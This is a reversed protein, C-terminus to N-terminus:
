IDIAKREKQHQNDLRDMWDEPITPVLSQERVSKERQAGLKQKAEQYISEAILSVSDTTTVMTENPKPWTYAFMTNTTPLTFPLLYRSDRKEVIWERTSEEDPSDDMDEATAASLESESQLSLRKERGVMNALLLSGLSSVSNPRSRATGRGLSMTSVRRSRCPSKPGDTSFGGKVKSARITDKAIQMTYKEIEEPLRAEDVEYRYHLVCRKIQLPNLLDFAKTTDIFAMLDDLQSVCQLLQLLQILPNLYTLLNSPLKNEHVWEEITTLNMRIQIAKSRCLYNKNTLIRNFMECSLFHFCQAIAQMIIVPHVEYSQLVYLSSSLLSAISQPSISRQQDQPRQCAITEMANSQVMSKRSRGRRFFRQWDNAFHVQGFGDFAEYELMAMELIKDIRKQFDIVLMMYIESILESIALQHEATAVVLGVDRKLYYLLQSLNTMWFALTQIDHNSCKVVDTIRDVASTLLECLLERTSFHHCFRASLFLINAPVLTEQQSKMPLQLESIATDLIHPLDKEDFVFMQHPLCQDWDFKDISHMCAEYAAFEIEEENDIGAPKADAKEWPCPDNDDEEDQTELEENMSAMLRRQREPENALFDQYGDETSQYYFDLNPLASVSSRRRGRKQRQSVIALESCITDGNSFIHTLNSNDTDVLDFVTRGRASVATSSAGHELLLKVVGSHNNSSAWMLATWGSKDQIDINAGASLLTRVVDLHGFCAAYILATSGNHEDDPTDINLFPRLREDTLIQQVNTNDGNSAARSLNSAVLRRWRRQHRQEHYEHEDMGNKLATDSDDDDDHDEVDLIPLHPASSLGEVTALLTATTITTIPTSVSSLTSSSSTSFTSSTSSWSFTNKRSSKQQKEGDSVMGHTDGPQSSASPQTLTVNNMPQNICLSTPRLKTPISTAAHTTTSNRRKTMTSYSSSTAFEKVAPHSTM